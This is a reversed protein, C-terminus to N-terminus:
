VFGSCVYFKLRLPLILYIRCTALGKKSQISNVFVFYIDLIFDRIGCDFTRPISSFDWIKLSVGM